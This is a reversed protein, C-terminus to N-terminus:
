LLEKVVTQNRGNEKAEYLAKDAEKYIEKMNLKCSPPVIVAGISITIYKSVQSNKHPIKLSYVAMRIKNVFYLADNINMEISVIGFEEGGIRFVFDTARKANDKMVKAVSILVEDGQQHGYTDNYQKFFDIDIMAFCVNHKLRKQISLIKEFEDDFHRRNYLGTMSDTIMLMSIKEIYAHTRKFFFWNVYVIFAIFFITILAFLFKIKKYENSQRKLEIFLEKYDAKRLLDIFEINNSMVLFIHKSTYTHEKSKLVETVFNVIIEQSAIMNNQLVQLIEIKEIENLKKMQLKLLNFYETIQSLLITAQEYKKGELKEKGKSIIERLRTNYEILRPLIDIISCSLIYEKKSNSLVIKSHFSIDKQLAILHQIHKSYINSNDNEKIDKLITKLENIIKTALPSKEPEKRLTVILKKAKNQIIQKNKTNDDPLYGHSGRIRQINNIIQQIKDIKQLGNTKCLILKHKENLYSYSFLLTIISAAIPLATKLFFNHINSQKM